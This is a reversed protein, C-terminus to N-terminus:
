FYGKGCIHFNMSIFIQSKIRTLPLFYNYRPFKPLSPRFRLVVPYRIVVPLLLIRCSASITEFFRCFKATRTYLQAHRKYRFIAQSFGRRSTARLDAFRHNMSRCNTTLRIDRFFIYVYLVSADTVPSKDYRETPFEIVWFSMAQLFSICLDERKYVGLVRAIARDVRPKIADRYIHNGANASRCRRFGLM